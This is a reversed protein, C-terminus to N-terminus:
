KQKVWSYEHEELRIREHLKQCTQLIRAYLPSQKRQFTKVVTDNLFVKMM